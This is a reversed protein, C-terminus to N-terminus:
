VPLGKRKAEIAIPLAGKIPRVSGDMSLEGMVISEALRDPPLQGTSALIGVAMPLDYASGEKHVDAPALNIV